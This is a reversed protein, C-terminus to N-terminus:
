RKKIQWAESTKAARILALAKNLTDDSIQEPDTFNWDLRDLDVLLRNVTYWGGTFLIRRSPNHVIIWQGLDGAAGPARRMALYKM